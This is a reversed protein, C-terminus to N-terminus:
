TGAGEETAAPSSATLRTEIRVNARRLGALVASEVTAIEEATIEFGCSRRECGAWDPAHASWDLSRQGCKPCRHLSM